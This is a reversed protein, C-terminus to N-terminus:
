NGCENDSSSTKRIISPTSKRLNAFLARVLLRVLWPRSVLFKQTLGELGRERERERERKGGPPIRVRNSHSKTKRRGGGEGEGESADCSFRNVASSAYKSSGSDRHVSPRRVVLWCAAM